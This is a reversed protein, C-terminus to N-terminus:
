ETSIRPRIGLISKVLVSIIGRNFLYRPHKLIAPFIKGYISGVRGSRYERIAKNVWYDGQLWNANKRDFIKELRPTIKNLMGSFAEEGYALEYGQLEHTVQQVFSEDFVFDSGAAKVFYQDADELREWILARVGRVLYGRSLAWLYNPRLDPFEPPMQSVMTDLLAKYDQSEDDVCYSMLYNMYPSPIGKFFAPNIQYINELFGRGLTTESKNFAVDSWMMYIHTRALPRLNLLDPPCRPDSFIIEQCTLEDNCNKDVEKIKRGPHYARYQLVQDVCAFKCGSMYLRGCVIIERGRLTIHANWIDEIFAWKRRIVWSSPPLYFGLTLDALTVNKPPQFVTRIKSSAPVLEFYPNYTFGVEPHDELFDVHAKLKERHYLDDQDLYAIIEGSSNRRGTGRASAAGENKDHCIFKIRPDDFRKVVEETNDPSRDNVIILEFNSYSQDLVSQIARSLTDAGGYTPIIVSVLPGDM